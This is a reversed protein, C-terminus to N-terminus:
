EIVVYTKQRLHAIKLDDTYISMFM